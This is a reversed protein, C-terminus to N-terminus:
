FGDTSTAQQIVLQWRGDRQVLVDTFRLYMEGYHGFAIGGLHDVDTVVATDGYTMARRDVEEHGGVTDARRMGRLPATVRRLTATAFASSNGNPVALSVALAM